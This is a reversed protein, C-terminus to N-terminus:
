QEPQLGPADTVPVYNPQAEPVRMAEIIEGYEAEQLLIACEGDCQVAFKKASGDWKGIEEYKTVANTLMMSESEVSKFHVLSVIANLEIGTDGLTMAQVNEDFAIQILSADSERHYELERDVAKKRNGPCHTEGNFVVQPTYPGRIEMNEAYARQRDAAVPLAMPDATGLYDWYDVSWTLLLMDSGPTSAKEEMVKIAGPCAECNQSVFLEAVLPKAVAFPTALGALLFGTIIRRIM